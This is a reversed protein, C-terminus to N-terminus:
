PVIRGNELRLTRRAVRNLFAHDHSAILLAAETDLLIQVLIDTHAQDLGNTPEDLLLAAPNMVLLTALAAMRKEGHSLEAPSLDRGHSLGLRALTSDVAVAVRDRPWGMNFPGFAVDEAVTACFLQDDSDEFLLGVRLRVEYFDKESRRRRGFARVEGRQPKNLGALVHLLTTKGSGNGGVLAVRDNAGLTMNIGSLTSRNPGYAFDVDTLAFLAEM